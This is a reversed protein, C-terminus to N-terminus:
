LPYILVSIAVGFVLLISVLVLPLFHTTKSYHELSVSARATEDEDM